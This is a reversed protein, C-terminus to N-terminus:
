RGPASDDPVLTLTAEGAERVAGESFAWPYTEGDIWAQTQDKWHPHFPHGSTGTQNVWRSADLDSLDVVMRMSPGATVAFSDTSADWNFANVLSSGGAVPYPDQGFVGGVLDPVADGSLVEHEPRVQHLQGWTWDQPDKSLTRTLDNRAQVMATRIVQDRSELVGPTRRDDWWASDPRRLLEELLLMSRSNGTAGLDPPLEDDLVTELLNDYVAYFYAAAASQEGEAPATLDWRRLLEQAETYFDNDLDIAVLYPVLVEAFANHDDLQLQTMDEVTLPTGDEIADTLLELIRASRYGKDSESTLFPTSGRVVTQNAAVIVGDEPNLVAPLDEFDVWGQWAYAEDWGPAPLYGPPTGHTASRRVPVLGPAQYGINGEVDAYLLNQSPVAFLRAADRFSEWDDAANLAFVAEATRGPELATWALAVAYDNSTRVGGLPADEGLDAVTGVVDSIIPGHSTSRVTFTVDDGGAVEITETHVDMPVYDAGRLVRDGRVDELYFDTVDPDLNTFAWAISANHGIIVGPFGAFTFGTVDFPCQEDVARCHLGAQTWVGPQSVALHPDNALLPSGTATHEGSVVWSNSGVGEGSGVLEPVQGLALATADFAQDVAAGALWAHTAGRTPGPPAVPEGLRSRDAADAADAGPTGSTGGRADAGSAAPSRPPTWEDPGLIPPHQDLPYEPYLEDLQALSVQGVLRGRNLEEEYNGRLDWAMAKLWALSDVPDWPEVRYGPASRALVVYELGMRSPSGQREIYANVGATYAQLYSRAQPDLLPLEQEAVRRWGMTRIVKDAEVGGEGVLESLRGSVVHRRLDMQFFRDQAAVFGQARFLDEPTDAYIHPVGRGDRVVEVAGTLGPIEIDGTAQPFARRTLGVGLVATAVAVVVLIAVVPVAVRQWLPRSM